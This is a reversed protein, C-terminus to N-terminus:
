QAHADHIKGASWVRYKLQMSAPVFVVVPLKSNYRVFHGPTSVFAEHESGPPCAMLTQPGQGQSQLVWYDYGWGQVDHQEFQGTMGRMNCDVRMTKGGILELKFNDEHKKQPLEIVVREYGDMSQPFAKLAERTQAQDYTESASNELVSCASLLSIGVMLLCSRMFLTTKRM